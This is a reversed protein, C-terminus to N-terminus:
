LSLHDAYVLRYKVPRTLVAFDAGDLPRILLDDRESWDTEFVEYERIALRLEEGKARQPLPVTGAYRVNALGGPDSLDLRAEDGVATWALDTTAGAPRREVQAVAFRSLDLRNTPDATLDAANATYAGPGRLSVAVASRGLKTMALTREAILQMFEPFVVKSLHQEAISHPQYRALALKVFPYYSSGADLQLDCYWLQRVEDFEPQHGVVTVEHGPAELLSIHSGVAVRLPFQHIYPGADPPASGWIPDRGWHTVFRQPDGSPMFLKAAVATLKASLLSAAAPAMADHTSLAVVAPAADPRVPRAARVTGRQLGALLRETPSAGRPGGPKALGSQFAEQALEDALAKVVGSAAVGRAVDLPWTFWAQPELVVGLLEDVGSSWWPRKLYVRLGGGSRTRLVTPPLQRRRAPLHLGPATREHWTWTPVVYLVDPPDPRRSSPVDLEVAPGTHTILDRQDTIDTPFYERFRTTATAQYTVYRHKNDHFEHRVKHTPPQGAVALADNRDIRCADESALLQFDGVHAHGDITTPTPQAVDDLPEHWQAEIDLRGTSKAHNAVVGSLVAFTEGVNRNVGSGPV